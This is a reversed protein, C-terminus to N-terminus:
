AGVTGFSITMLAMILPSQGPGIACYIALFDGLGQLLKELLHILVHFGVVIKPLCSLFSVYITLHCPAEFSPEVWPMDSCFVIRTLILVPAIVVLPV